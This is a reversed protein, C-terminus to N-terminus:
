LDWEQQTSGRKNQVAVCSGCVVVVWCVGSDKGADATKRYLSSQNLKPQASLCFTTRAGPDQRLEPSLVFEVAM